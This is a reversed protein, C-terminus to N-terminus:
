EGKLEALKREFISKHRDADYRLKNIRNEHKDGLNLLQELTNVKEKLLRIALPSARDRRDKDFKELLRLFVGAFRYRVENQTTSEIEQNKFFTEILNWHSDLWILIYKEKALMMQENSKEYQFMPHYIEPNEKIFDQVLNERAEKLTFLTFTLIDKSPLM